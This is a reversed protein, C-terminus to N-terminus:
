SRRIDRERMEETIHTRRASMGTAVGADHSDERPDTPFYGLNRPARDRPEINLEGQDNLYSEREHEIVFNHLRFATRIIKSANELDTEDLNSRFVRWKTTLLGFAQEIKIRLSSLHYNYADHYICNRKEAGSYPILITESLEYANDAIIFYDDPLNQLWRNFESCKAFARVDNMGGPGAIGLFMFRLHADCMAQVNLGFRQYHGSFFDSTNHVIPKNTDCLWGDLAGIVGKFLGFAKSKEEFACANAELEELTYPLALSFAPNFIVANWFKCVIRKASSLSMGYILAIHKYACGGMFELGSALVLEPYIPDNGSTSNKSKIHNATIDDRITELLISFTEESMHYYTSFEQTHRLKQVHEDWNLRQHQWKIRKSKKEKLFAFFTEELDDDDYERLVLMRVINSNFM